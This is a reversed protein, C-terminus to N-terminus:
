GQRRGSREFFGELALPDYSSHVYDLGGLGKGAEGIGRCNDPLRQILFDAAATVAAKSIVLHSDEVVLVFYEPIGERIVDVLRTAVVQWDLNADAGRGPAIEGADAFAPFQVLIASFIHRLLSQPDGDLEDVTYWCVPVDADGAFDALLTTKGYGAPACILQLPYDINQYLVDLLRQRRLM